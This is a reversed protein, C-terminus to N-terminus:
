RLSFQQVGTASSTGDDLLADVFWFFPSGAAPFTTRPIGLLTDDTRQILVTTGTATTVTVQYQTHHPARTWTLWVTDGSVVAGPAPAVTAFAGPPEAARTQSLDPTLNTGPAKGVWFLALGAAAAAAAVPVGIRWRQQRRVRRMTDTVEVLEARCAACDLCHAEVAAREEEAVDDTLYRTVQEATLHHNQGESWNM